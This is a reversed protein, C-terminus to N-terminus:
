ESDLYLICNWGVVGIEEKFEARYPTNKVLEKTDTLEKEALLNINRKDLM